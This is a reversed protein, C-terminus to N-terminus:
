RSDSAQRVAKVTVLLFGAALFSWFAGLAAFAISGLLLTGLSMPSAAQGVMWYDGVITATVAGFMPAIVIARGLSKSEHLESSSRLGPSERQVCAPDVESRPSTSGHPRTSGNQRLRIGMANGAVHALIGLAVFAAGLAIGPGVAISAACLVCILAVLRMLTALRFQPPQLGPRIEPDPSNNM